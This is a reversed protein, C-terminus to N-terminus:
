PAPSSGNQPAPAVPKGQREEASRAVRDIKESLEALSVGLERGAGFQDGAFALIGILAAIVAIGTGIVTGVVAWRTAKNDSRLEKMEALVGRDGTIASAFNDALRDIKANLEVFRTETRAEVASLKADIEERTMANSMDDAARKRLSHGEAPKGDSNGGVTRWGDAASSEYDVLYDNAPGLNVQTSGGPEIFDIESSRFSM